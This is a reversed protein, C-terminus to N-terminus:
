TNQALLALKILIFLPAIEVTCLYMFFHFKNHALYRSGILLGRLYLLAYVVLLVALGIYLFISSFSNPAFALLLVIPLLVLGAVQNFIAITFNYFSLERAAPSVLAAAGVASHKLLLVALVGGICYLVWKWSPSFALNGLFHTLILYAFLGFVVVSVAYLLMYPVMNVGGHERYIHTLINHNIFARFIKEIYYRYLTATLALFLLLGLSLGFIFNVSYKKHLKPQPVPPRLVVQQRQAPKSTAKKIQAVSKVEGRYQEFPNNSRTKYVQVGASDSKAVLLEDTAIRTLLDFPNVAKDQANLLPVIFLFTFCLSLVTAKIGFNRM